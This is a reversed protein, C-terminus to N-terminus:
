GDCKLRNLREQVDRYKPDIVEVETYWQAASVRKKMMEYARGTMYFLDIKKVHDCELERIFSELFAIADFPMKQLLYLHVKLYGASLLTKEDSVPCAREKKLVADIQQLANQHFGAEMFAVTLDLREQASLNDIKKQHSGLSLRIQSEKSPLESGGLGLDLDADLRQLVEESSFSESRRQRGLRAGREEFQLIKELEHTQIKDLLKRAAVDEPNKRLLAWLNKKAEELFGESYLIKATELSIELPQEESTKKQSASHTDTVRTKELLDEALDVQTQDDRGADKDDGM